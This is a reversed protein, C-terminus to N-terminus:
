KKATRQQKIISYAQHVGLEGATSLDALAETTNGLQLNIIGRNFYALPFRQRLSIAQDLDDKAGATNGRMARVYARNYYAEAFQPTASIVATFAAEALPLEDAQMTHDIGQQFTSIIQEDAGCAELTYTSVLRQSAVTNDGTLLILPLLKTEATKNQIKGRLPNDYTKVPQDDEVLQQYDNPDIDSKKRTRNAQRSTPTTYGYRHAVNERLIHEEDQMAGRVDGTKRRAEARLQYGYLFKPFANIVRTYDRIARTYDGTQDYLRARNFLTMIDDPDIDLIFDFDEIALNDEGVSARLLGRNYHAIFNLPDIDLALNYDSMAGRLNNQQYRCLARSILTRANKPQLRIAEDLHTEAESYKDRYMLFQAKMSQAAPNYPDVELARDASAEAALTDGQMTRIEARLLYGDAHQPWRRIFQTLTSDARTISDLEMYCLVLNHWMPRHEDEISIAKEYDASAGEYDKLNIRSLGRVEYSNIYYPNIEISRTCDAIAGGYDELYFKALARYFYPEHLYPKANIVHNFYQISLAYDDYYLANRGILMMREANIQASLTTAVAFLITYIVSRM